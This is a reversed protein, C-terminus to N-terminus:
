EDDDEGTDVFRANCDDFSVDFPLDDVDERKVLKYDTMDNADNKAYEARIEEGKERDDFRELAPRAFGGEDDPWQALILVWEPPDDGEPSHDRPDTGNITWDNEAADKVKSRACVTCQGDYKRGVSWVRHGEPIGTGCSVCNRGRDDNETFEVDLGSEKRSERTQRRREHQYHDGEVVMYRRRGFERDYWMRVAAAAVMPDKAVAMADRIDDPSHDLCEPAFAVYDCNCDQVAKIGGYADPLPEQDPGALSEFTDFFGDEGIFSVSFSLRGLEGSYGYNHDWHERDSRVMEPETWIDMYYPKFRDFPRDPFEPPEDEPEDDPEVDVGGDTELEPDDRHRDQPELADEGEPLEYNGVKERGGTLVSGMGFNTLKEREVPTGLASFKQGAGSPVARYLDADRAIAVRRAWDTHAGSASANQVVNLCATSIADKPGDAYVTDLHYEGPASKDRTDPERPEGGSSMRVDGRSYGSTFVALVVYETPGSM